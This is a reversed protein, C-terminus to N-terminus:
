KVLAEVITVLMIAVAGGYLFSILNFTRSLSTDIEDFKRMCAQYANDTQKSLDQIETHLDDNNYYSM